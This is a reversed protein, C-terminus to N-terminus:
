KVLERIITDLGIVGNGIQGQNILRNRRQRAQEAHEGRPFNQLYQTYSQVTDVQRARQWAQDERDRRPNDRDAQALRQRATQAYIGDPYRDLYARLNRVGGKAGTQQWYARDQQDRSPAAANAQARMADVQPGTLYGTVAYGNRQQWGRIASRSRSGFIGDAGGTSYGLTNLRRQIAVRDGRSLNLRNETLEAQSVQRPPTVQRPQQIEPAPAPAPAPAPRLEALRNQAAQAFEGQPYRALYDQYAAVTNAAAAEAWLDRDAQAAGLADLRAKAAASYLGGPYRDLYGRYAAATDEAAAQAWLDRDAELPGAPADAQPGAAVLVLQADGGEAMVLRDDAGVVTGVSTGPELLAAAAASTAAPPGSIVTVGEPPTLPGIGNELGTAHEMEAEDSGLLLVAGPRAEKMLDLVMSLPVGQAGAGVLDPKDADTGMYWSDNGGHLFRGNLLVIRAGPSDDPRLLDAVAQRVDRVVLDAGTVTRFGAARMAAAAAGADADALDPANQYRANAIVVGRNEALAPGAVLLAALFLSLHRM